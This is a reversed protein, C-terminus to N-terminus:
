RWYQWCYIQSRNDEGQKTKLVIMSCQPDKQSQMFICRNLALSQQLAAMLKGNDASAWVSSLGIPCGGQGGGEEGSPDNPDSAGTVIQGRWVERLLPPCFREYSVVSDSVLLSKRTFNVGAPM